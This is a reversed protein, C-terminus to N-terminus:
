NKASLIETKYKSKVYVVDITDGESVSRFLLKDHFIVEQGNLSIIVYYKEVTESASRIVVNGGTTLGGFASQSPQYHKDLVVGVGNTPDSWEVCSSTLFLCLIFLQKM